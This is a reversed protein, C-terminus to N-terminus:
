EGCGYGNTLFRTAPPNVSQDFNGLLRTDDFQGAPPFDVSWNPESPSPNSIVTLDSGYANRLDAETAGMGIGAATRLAFADQGTPASYDWSFFEQSQGPSWHGDGESFFARLTTPGQGGWSLVRIRNGPCVGFHTQGTANIWGTDDDPSGMQQTLAQIAAGPPDGFAAVCLGDHRLVVGTCRSSAGSGAAAGAATTTTPPATSSTTSSSGTTSSSTSSTSTASATSATEEDDLVVSAVGFGGLAAAAVLVVVWM